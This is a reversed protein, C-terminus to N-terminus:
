GPARSSNRPRTATFLCKDQTSFKVGQWHIIQAIKIVAVHYGAIHIIIEGTITAMALKKRNTAQRQDRTFLLGM